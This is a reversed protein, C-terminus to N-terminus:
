KREYRCYEQRTVEWGGNLRYAELDRIVLRGKDDFSLDGSGQWDQKNKEDFESWTQWRSKRCIKTKGSSPCWDWHHVGAKYELHDDMDERHEERFEEGPFYALQHETTTGWNEVAITGDGKQQIQTSRTYAYRGNFCEGVWNGSFDATAAANLSFLLALLM